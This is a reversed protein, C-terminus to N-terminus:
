TTRYLPGLLSHCVLLFEARSSNAASPIPAINSDPSPAPPSSSVIARTCLDFLNHLSRINACLISCYNNTAFRRSRLSDMEYSPIKRGLKPIIRCVNNAIPIEDPHVTSSPPSVTVPQKQDNDKLLETYDMHTLRYTSKCSNFCVTSALPNQVHPKPSPVDSMVEPYSSTKSPCNRM